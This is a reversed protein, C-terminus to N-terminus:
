PYPMWMEGVHVPGTKWPQVTDAPGHSYDIYLSMEVHARVDRLGHFVHGLIEIDEYISYSSIQTHVVKDNM